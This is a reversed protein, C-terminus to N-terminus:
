DLEFRVPLNIFVRMAKGQHYGPVFQGIKERMSHVVQMAAAGCDYGIDRILQINSLHGDKEVTFQVVCVGEVCAQQAAKPYVLNARVFALLKKDACTKKEAVSMAPHECGPFRPMVEVVKYAIDEDSMKPPPMGSPPVQAYTSTVVFLSCALILYKM